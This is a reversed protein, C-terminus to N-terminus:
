RCIVTVSEADPLEVRLADGEQNPVIRSIIRSLLGHKEAPTLEPATLLEEVIVGLNKILAEARDSLAEKQKDELPALSALRAKLVDRKQRIDTFISAYVAPDAGASIGAIQAEVTNKERQALKELEQEIRRCEQADRAPQDKAALMAKWAGRVSEPRDVITTLAHIVAEEVIQAFFSKKYCVEGTISQSPSHYHCAYYARGNNVGRKQGKMNNNCKPCKLIGTLMWRRDRRGAQNQKNLVLRAQAAEWAEESVIAPAPITIVSEDPSFRYFHPHKLGRQRRSEDIVRQKRGFTACGKNVPNGIIRSITESSWTKGGRPTPIGREHLALAVQRLSAGSVFQQYIFGVYPAEDPHLLYKGLQEQTADGAMVMAKTVIIYGYPRMARTTQIGEEARNRRGAMTRKRILQREYQAFDGFIGFMLDGEPTEEFHADCFIIRASALRLRKIITSQHERDRSLRSVNAVILTDAEGADILKLAKQLGERTEYYGGSSDDSFTGVIEAGMDAAKRSTTALQETLSTGNQAQEETSVRQYLVARPTTTKM